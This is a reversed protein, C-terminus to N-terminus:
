KSKGQNVVSNIKASIKDQDGLYYNKIPKLNEDLEYVLPIGTPINLSVIDEKSVNDLHKVLARLSNGHAVIMIRKGSIVHPSITNEWYPLFRLVTDKLCECSPIDEDKLNNYKKDFRPHRKDDRDLQPPRIDYSRRWTLVQEDGYKKATELKNLGQLAGYHRENLRWDYFIDINMKKMNNLCIKMTNAARKLVSTFVMDFAINEASLLLAAEKAEAKGKATLEVDTWGTFKNELNWKSEGHRLLVLKM